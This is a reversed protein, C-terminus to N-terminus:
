WSRGSLFFDLLPFCGPPEDLLAVVPFLEGAHAFACWGSDLKLVIPRHDANRPGASIGVASRTSISHLLGDEFRDAGHLALSLAERFAVSPTGYLRDQLSRAGHRERKNAARLFRSAATAALTAM